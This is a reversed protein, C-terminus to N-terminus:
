KYAVFGQHFEVQYLLSEAFGWFVSRYFPTASMGLPMQFEHASGGALYCLTCHMFHEAQVLQNLKKPFM